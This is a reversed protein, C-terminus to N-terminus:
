DVCEIRVSVVIYVALLLRHVLKTLYTNKKELLFMKVLNISCM